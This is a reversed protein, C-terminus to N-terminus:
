TRTIDDQWRRGPRGRLRKGRIPQWETCRKTWRTDKMGAQHGAWRWKQNLTHEIMDFIKPNKERIESGLIQNGRWQENLM